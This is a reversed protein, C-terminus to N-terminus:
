RALSLSMQTDDIKQGQVRFQDVVTDTARFGLSEYLAIAPKNHAFVWLDIWSLEAQSRAWSIAQLSLRRGVGQGRAAREIGIGFQCRHATAAMHSARLLADGVVEGGVEAIWIRQWTTGSIPASIAELMTAVQEAKKWDEFDLVPHFIFDGDKGSERFHRLMHDYYAPLDDPTALRINM